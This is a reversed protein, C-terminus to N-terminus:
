WWWWGGGVVVWGKSKDWKSCCGRHKRRKKTNKGMTRRSMVWQDLPASLPWCNVAARLNHLRIHHLQWQASIHPFLAAAATHLSPCVCQTVKKIQQKHSMIICCQCEMCQKLNNSMHLSKFLQKYTIVTTSGVQLLHSCMTLLPGSKIKYRSNQTM